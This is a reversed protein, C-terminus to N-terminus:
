HPLNAPPTPNRLYAIVDKADAESFRYEPMPPLPRRGGPLVGKTLFELAQEDTLGPLHAIPKSVPAWPMPITPTFPLPSGQLWREAIINGKEDRPSHCDWCMGVQQVLYRGHEADGAHNATAAATTAGTTPAPATFFAVQLGTAIAILAVSSLVILAASGAPRAASSSDATLNPM